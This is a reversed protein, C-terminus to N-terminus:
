EYFYQNKVPFICSVQRSMMEILAMLKLCSENM